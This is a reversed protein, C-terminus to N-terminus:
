ATKIIEHVTNMQCGFTTVCAKPQRGYEAQFAAVHTRCKELYEDQRALEMENENAM